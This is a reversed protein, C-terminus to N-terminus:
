NDHVSSSSPRAERAARLDVVAAAARVGAAFREWMQSVVLQLYEASDIGPPLVEGIMQGLEGQQTEPFTEAFAAALIEREDDDHITNEGALEARAHLYAVRRM